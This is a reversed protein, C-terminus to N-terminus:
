LRVWNLDCEPFRTLALQVVFLRCTNAIIDFGAELERNINVQTQTRAFTMSDDFATRMTEATTFRCTLKPTRLAILMEYSVYIKRSFVVGNICETLRYALYKADAVFDPSDAPVTKFTAHRGDKRWKLSIFASGLLRYHKYTIRPRFYYLMFAFMPMSGVLLMVIFAIVGTQVANSQPVVSVADSFLESVAARHVNRRWFVFDSVFSAASGVHSNWFATGLWESTANLNIEPIDMPRFDHSSYTKIIPSEVTFFLPASIAVLASMLLTFFVTYALLKAYKQRLAVDNLRNEMSLFLENYCHKAIYPVSAGPVIDWWRIVPMDASGEAPPAYAPLPLRVAAPPSAAPQVPAPAEAKASGVHVNVDVVTRQAERYNSGRPGQKTKEKKCDNYVHGVEGCNRCTPPKKPDPCAKSFHGDKGCNRCAKCDKAIHGPKGCVHCNRNDRKEGGAANQGTTAPASATATASSSNTSTM